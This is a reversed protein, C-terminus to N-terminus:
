RSNREVNDYIVEFVKSAVRSAIGGVFIWISAILTPVVENMKTALLLKEETMRPDYTGNAKMDFYKAITEIDIKGLANMAMFLATLALAVALFYFFLSAIKLEKTKM